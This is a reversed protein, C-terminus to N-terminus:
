GGRLPGEGDCIMAGLLPCSAPRASRSITAIRVAGRMDKRLKSAKSPVVDFAALLVGVVSAGFAPPALFALFGLFLSFLCM